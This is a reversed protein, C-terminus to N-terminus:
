ERAFDARTNTGMAARRDRWLQASPPNTSKPFYMFYMSMHGAYLYSPLGLGWRSESCFFDVSWDPKRLNLV